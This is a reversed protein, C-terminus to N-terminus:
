RLDYAAQRVSYGVPTKGDDGSGRATFEAVSVQGLSRSPSAAALRCSGPLNM